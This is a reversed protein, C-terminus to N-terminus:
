NVEWKRWRQNRSIVKMNGAEMLKVITSVEYLEEHLTLREIVSKNWKAYLGEHKCM